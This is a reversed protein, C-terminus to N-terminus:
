RRKAKKVPPETPDLAELLSTLAEEAVLTESQAAVLRAEADAQDRKARQVRERAARLKVLEPDDPLQQKEAFARAEKMCRAQAADDDEEIDASLEIFKDFKCKRYAESGKSEMKAVLVQAREDLTDVASVQLVVSAAAAAKSLAAGDKGTAKAAKPTSPEM